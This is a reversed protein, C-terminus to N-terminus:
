CCSKVYRNKENVQVDGLFIKLYPDSESNIDRKSLDRLELIYLRVIMDRKILLEKSIDKHRTLNKFEKLMLPNVNAINDYLKFYEEKKSDLIVFALGKFYGHKDHEIPRYNEKVECDKIVYKGDVKTFRKIIKNKSALREFVEDSSLSDVFKDRRLPIKLFPSQLNVEKVLELESHYYRRYHKEELNNEKNPNKYGVEFYLSRDPIFENDEKKCTDVGPFKIKETKYVPEFIISNSSLKYQFSRLKVDREKDENNIIKDILNQKQMQPNIKVERVDGDDEKAKLVAYQGKYVNNNVVESHDNQDEEKQINGSQVSDAKLSKLEKESEDSENVKEVKEAKELKSSDELNKGM